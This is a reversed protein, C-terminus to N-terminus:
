EDDLLATVDIAKTVHVELFGSVFHVVVYEYMIYVSFLLNFNM